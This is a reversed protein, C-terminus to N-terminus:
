NQELKKIAIAHRRKTQRYSYGVICCVSELPEGDVYKARIIVREIPDLVGIASEIAELEKKILEAKELYLEQSYLLDTVSGGVKDTNGGCGSGETTDSSSKISTQRDRIGQIKNELYELETVLSRFNKLRKVIDM